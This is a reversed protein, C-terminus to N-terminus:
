RKAEGKGTESTNYGKEYGRYADSDAVSLDPIAALLPIDEFTQLLFSEDHIKDDQLEILIIVASSLLLGVLLGIFAYRTINPSSKSTPPDAYDVVRVSTNDIIETVKEPLVEAITNAILAAETPSASTVTVQFVETDNVAGASIMGKLQGYSYNLDAKEIVDNLTSKTELIVLYTSVLSKALQLDGSSVSISAGSVSISKGNVYLLVSSQYLPKIMFRAYSFAAAACIVCALVIVWARHWMAGLLRFLDIEVIEENRKM